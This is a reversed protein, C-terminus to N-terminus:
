FVGLLLGYRCQTLGTPNMERRRAANLAGGVDVLGQEKDVIEVVVAYKVVAGAGAALAVVVAM